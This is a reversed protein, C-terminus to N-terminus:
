FDLCSVWTMRGFDLLAFRHIQSPNGRLTSESENVQAGMM